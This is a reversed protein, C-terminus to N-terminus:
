SCQGCPEIEFDTIRFNSILKEFHRFAVEYEDYWDTWFGNTTNEDVRCGCTTCHIKFPPRNLENVTPFNFYFRYRM